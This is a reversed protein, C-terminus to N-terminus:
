TLALEVAEVLSGVVPAGTAELAETLQSGGDYLVCGIGAARAALADDDVDGIVVFRAGELTPYMEKLRAVHHTLHRHKTDGATGRNGDLALMHDDLGFGRVTPVLMDHWLMSAISQTAGSTSVREIAERADRTLDASDFGDWYADQFVQDLREILDDGVPRGLISTYFRDLPRAFERRYTDADIRPGGESALCANVAEVVLAADDFLTGNWDWVIHRM